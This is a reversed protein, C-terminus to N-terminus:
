ASKDQSQPLIQEPASLEPTKGGQFKRGLYAGLSVGSMQLSMSFAEKLANIASDSTTFFSGLKNIALLTTIITCLGMFFFSVVVMTVTVSPQKTKPDQIMPFSLGDTKAKNIFAQVKNTIDAM